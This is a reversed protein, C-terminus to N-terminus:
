ATLAHSSMMFKVNLWFAFPRLRDCTECTGRGSHECRPRVKKEALFEDRNVFDGYGSHLECIREGCVFCTHGRRQCPSNSSAATGNSSCLSCVSWDIANEDNPLVLDEWRIHQDGNGHEAHYRKQRLRISLHWLSRHKLCGRRAGGPGRLAQTVTNGNALHDSLQCSEDNFINFGRYLYFCDLPIGTREQVALYLEFFTADAAITLSFGSVSSSHPRVHLTFCPNM